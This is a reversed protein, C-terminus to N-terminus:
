AAGQDVRYFEAPRLDPFCAPANTALFTRVEDCLECPLAYAARAVFGRAVAQEYLATPGATYLQVLAPYRQPDLTSGLDALAVGLGPCGAPVFDGHLDVHFHSGSALSLCARRGEELIRALPRQPHGDLFTRLARGGLNVGYRRELSGLYGPGYAREYEDLSHTCGDDFRDIEGFFELRWPFVRTGAQECAALLGKVKCFPIFANHFPDISVLLTHCGLGQLDRLLDAAQDVTRFWSANTEVYDIHMREARAVRLVARLGVPDLFPEGGGLHLSSCGLERVARISAEAQEPTIYARDRQPASRYVCHACASSCNYNTILGGAQLRDVRLASM